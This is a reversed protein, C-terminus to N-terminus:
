EYALAERVTICAAQSAPALSAVAGFLLVILLWAFLGVVSFAYSLSSRLLLAGVVRAMAVSLPVALLGALLWSAVGVLLGEATVVRRIVARSAGIARMVGIERRREIVSLSMSGALGVGGVAALLVAMGLLFLAILDYQARVTAAMASTTNTSVVGIGLGEFHRRLLSAVDAQFSPDHSATVVHLRAAQGASRMLRSVYGYNAYAIPEGLASEVVGVVRWTTDEGRLRLLAQDGVALGPEARLVETNIVIANQDEPLLWRGAVLTPRLMETAAPPAILVWQPGAHGDARMRRTTFYGWAESAVVGDVKLAEDQLQAVRHPRDLTLEVDYDWYRLTRGLTAVLSAHVSAVAIFVAGALVLAAMTLALRGRRRLSNRLSLRMPRSLLRVRSLMADLRGPVFGAATTGYFAMAAHPSLRVGRVVPLIGAALPVALGVLAQAALGSLPVAFTANGLNLLTALARSLLLGGVIGAPLGILLALVSYALLLGVYLRALQASRAGIAKMIGIQRVQELLLASVTNAILFGSSGLSLLGLLGLLWLMPEVYRNAPHEGATPVYVYSVTGGARELRDRVEDAVQNAAAQGGDGAAIVHIQDYGAPAGLWALTELTAFGSVAGVLDAPLRTTDHATGALRLTRRLGGATEVTVTDGEAVGLHRLSAQEVLLAGRPPPWTGSRRAIRSVRMDGYDPIATLQMTVRRDGPLLAQVVLTRRGEATRVTRSRGVAAVFEDDIGSGYIVASAPLSAQYSTTLAQSLMARANILSGVAAVGLSISLVVLLTRGRQRSLDRAIKRWRPSLM